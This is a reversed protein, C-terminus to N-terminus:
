VQSAKAIAKCLANVQIPTLSDIRADSSVGEPWEIPTKTMVKVSGALKKRRRQFLSQTMDAMTPWWNSAENDIAEQSREWRM